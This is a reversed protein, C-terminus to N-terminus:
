SECTGERHQHEYLGLRESEAVMEDLARMSAEYRKDQVVQPRLKRVAKAIPNRNKLTRRKAM